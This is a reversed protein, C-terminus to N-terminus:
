TPVKLNGVSKSKKMKANSYELAALFTRKSLSDKLSKEIELWFEIM